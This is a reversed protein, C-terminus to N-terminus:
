YCTNVSFTEIYKKAWVNLQIFLTIVKEKRGNKFYIKKSKITAIYVWKGGELCYYYLILYMQFLRKQSYSLHSHKDDVAFWRRWWWRKTWSLSAQTKKKLIQPIHFCPLYMLCWIYIVLYEDYRLLFFFYPQTSFYLIKQKKYLYLM